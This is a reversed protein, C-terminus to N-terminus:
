KCHSTSLLELCSKETDFFYMFFSEKPKFEDSLFMKTVLSNGCVLLHMFFIVALIIQPPKLNILQIM